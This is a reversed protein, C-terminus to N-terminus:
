GFINQWTQFRKVGEEGFKSLSKIVQEPTKLRNPKSKSYFKDAWCILKEETTEPLFDAHPLPLQQQEIEQATLGAGTHRECVRAYPEFDEPLQYAEGSMLQRAEQRLMLAGIRGHCIYPETGHCEISPADCRCIGIDHLMSADAVFQEDLSLEPHKHCATLAMLMVCRSHYLLLRRLADDAPYFKQILPLIWRSPLDSVNTM